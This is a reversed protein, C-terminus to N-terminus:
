ASEPATQPGSGCPTSAHPLREHIEPAALRVENAAPMPPSLRLPVHFAGNRTIHATRISMSISLKLVVRPGSTATAPTGDDRASNSTASMPCFFAAGSAAAPCAPVAKVASNTPLHKRREERTVWFLRASSGFAVTTCVSSKSGSRCPKSSRDTLRAQNPKRSKRPGKACHTSGVTCYHLTHRSTSSSKNTLRIAISIFPSIANRGSSSDGSACGRGVAM